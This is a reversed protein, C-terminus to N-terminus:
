WQSNRCPAEMLARLRKLARHVLVGVNSRSLGTAEAIETNAMDQFFKMYLIRRLREPLEALASQMRRQEEQREAHDDPPDAAQPGRVNVIGRRSRRFHGALETRVISWLWGAPSRRCQAIKRVAKLFVRATIEEALDADGVRALM